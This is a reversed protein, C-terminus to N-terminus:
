VYVFLLIQILSAARPGPCPPAIVVSGRGLARRTHNSIGLLPFKRRFGHVSHALQGSSAVLSAASWLLASSTGAPHHDLMSSPGTINSCTSVRCIAITLVCADGQGLTASAGSGIVGPHGPALRGPPAVLIWSRNRDHCLHSLASEPFSINRLRYVLGWEQYIQRWHRIQYHRVASAAQLAIPVLGSWDSKCDKHDVNIITIM